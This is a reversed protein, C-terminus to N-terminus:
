QQDWRGKVLEALPELNHWPLHWTQQFPQGLYWIRAIRAPNSM